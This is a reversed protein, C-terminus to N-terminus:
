SAFLRVEEHAHREAALSSRVADLAPLTSIPGRHALDVARAAIEDLRHALASLAAHVAYPDLGLLRVAATAPQSVAGYAAALAADHAGLGAALAAAGM